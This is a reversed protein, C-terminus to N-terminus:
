YIRLFLHNKLVPYASPRPQFIFYFTGGAAQDSLSKKLQESYSSTKAFNKSLFSVSSNICTYTAANGDFIKLFRTTNSQGPLEINETDYFVVDEYKEKIQKGTLIDASDIGATSNTELENIDEFTVQLYVCGDEAPDGLFNATSGKMRMTLSIIPGTENTTVQKMEAGNITVPVKLADLSDETLFEKSNLGIALFRGDKRKTIYLPEKRSKKYRSLDYVFGENIALNMKVNNEVSVPLSTSDNIVVPADSSVFFFKFPHNEFNVGFKPRELGYADSRPQQSDVQQSIWKEIKKTAFGM